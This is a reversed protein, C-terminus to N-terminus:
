DGSLRARVRSAGKRGCDGCLVGRRRGMHLGSPCPGRHGVASPKSPLARCGADRPEALRVHAFFTAQRLALDGQLFGDPRVLPVRFFMLKQAGLWMRSRVRNEALRAYRTATGQEGGELLQNQRLFHTLAELEEDTLRIANESFLRAKLRNVSGASWRSLVDITRQGIQFFRNRVPDRIVWGPAGSLFAAGPSIELDDRLPALPRDEHTTDM